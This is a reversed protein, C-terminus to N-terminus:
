PTIDNHSFAEQELIIKMVKSHYDIISEYVESNKLIKDFGNNLVERIIRYMLAESNILKGCYNGTNWAKIAETRHYMVFQKSTHLNCKPCIVQTYYHGNGGEIVPETGCIPCCKLQENM